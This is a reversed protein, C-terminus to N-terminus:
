ERPVSTGFLMRGCCLGSESSDVPDPYWSSRCSWVGFPSGDLSIAAEDKAVLVGAMVLLDEVDTKLPLVEMAAAVTRPMMVKEARRKRAM